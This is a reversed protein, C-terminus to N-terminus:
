NEEQSIIMEIYEDSIMTLKKSFDLNDISKLKETIDYEAILGAFEELSVTRTTRGLKIELKAEDFEQNLRISLYQVLDDQNTIRKIFGRIKEIIDKFVPAGLHITVEKEVEKTIENLNGSADAKRVNKILTLTKPRTAINEDTISNNLKIDFHSYLETKKLFDNFTYNFITKCGSYGARHFIFFVRGNIYYSHVIHNYIASHDSNYHVKTKRKLNAVDFEEGKIGVDPKLIIRFKNRGLEELNIDNYTIMVRSIASYESASKISENFDKIIKRFKEQEIPEIYERKYMEKLKCEYAILTHITEASM